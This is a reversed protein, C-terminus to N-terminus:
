TEQEAAAARTCPCEGDCSIIAATLAATFEPQMAALLERVIACNREAQSASDPYPHCNPWEGFCRTSRGHHQCGTDADGDTARYRIEHERTCIERVTRPQHDQSM